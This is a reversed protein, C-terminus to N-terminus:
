PADAYVEAAIRFATNAAPVGCYVASQLIVERVEDVTLGNRLAARLHMALEEHHELAILATLVAVSRSRRDLGPRSWVDGWAVRTIFDQFDATLPTTGAIARDVHADSLVERRVTMGQDYREQDTLGEGDPRTM